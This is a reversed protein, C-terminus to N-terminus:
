FLDAKIAKFAFHSSDLGDLFRTLVLIALYGVNLRSQLRASM